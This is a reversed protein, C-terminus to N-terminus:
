SGGERRRLVVYRLKGESVAVPSFRTAMSSMNAVHHEVWRAFHSDTWPEALPAGDALLLVLTDVERREILARPIRKTTHGGPLVAIGIDTVGALDVIAGDAAAGVWGVDLTAISKAGALTPGLQDIVARRKPEVAAARPGVTILAWMLGACALLMRGADLGLGLRGTHPRALVAAAVLVLTPLVVVALRSLPMWDGGAAAIALFHVVVALQLGRVWGALNSWAVTAILGCLLAAAAAYVLGHHLDSPKAVLSLPASRGFAVFRCIAVAAAPAVVIGFRRWRSRQVANDRAPGLAVVLAWPIAEPRLAAVVSACGLTWGERGSVRASVAVSALGLVLGTEMGAVSWAALPASLAILVLAGWRRRGDGIREIALSLSAAGLLWAFLGIWKAAQYGAWVSGRAFPALLLAWGLPTVGDSTPGTANFRYGHGNALHHAYRASILGDDVMFHWLYVALPLAAALGALAVLASRRRAESVTATRDTSDDQGQVGIAGRTWDQAFRVSFKALGCETGLM